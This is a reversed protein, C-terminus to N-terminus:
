ELDQSERWMLIVTSTNVASSGFTTKTGAKGLLLLQSFLTPTSTRSVAGEAEQLVGSVKSPVYCLTGLTTGRHLEQLRLWLHWWCLRM